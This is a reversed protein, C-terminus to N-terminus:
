QKHFSAYNQKLRKKNRTDHRKHTCIPSILEVAKSKSFFIIILSHYAYSSSYDILLSIFTNKVESIFCNIQDQVHARLPNKEETWLTSLIKQLLQAKALPFNIETFLYPVPWKM